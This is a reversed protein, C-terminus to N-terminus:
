ARFIAPPSRDSPAPTQHRGPRCDDQPTETGAGIDTNRAGGRTWHAGRREPGFSLGTHRPDAIDGSPIGPGMLVMRAGPAQGDRAMGADVVAPAFARPDDVM